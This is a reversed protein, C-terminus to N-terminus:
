GVKTVGLPSVNCRVNKGGSLLLYRSPTHSVNTLTPSRAINMRPRARIMYSPAIKFILHSSPWIKM